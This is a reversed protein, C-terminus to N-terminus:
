ARRARIRDADEIVAMVTTTTFHWKSSLEGGELVTLPEMRRKLTAIVISAAEAEQECVFKAARTKRLNEALREKSQEAANRADIAETLEAQLGEAWSQSRDRERECAALKSELEQIRELRNVALDHTTESNRAFRMATEIWERLNDDMDGRRLPDDKEGAAALAFDAIEVVCKAYQKEYGEAPLGDANLVGTLAACIYQDRRDNM